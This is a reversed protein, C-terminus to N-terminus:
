DKSSVLPTTDDHQLFAPQSLQATTKDLNEKFFGTWMKLIELLEEYALRDAEDRFKEADKESSFEIAPKNGLGYFKILRALHNLMVPISANAADFKEFRLNHTALFIEEFQLAEKIWLDQVLRMQEKALNTSWSPDRLSLLERLMRAQIFCEEKCLHVWATIPVGGAGRAASLIDNQGPPFPSVQESTPNREAHSKV